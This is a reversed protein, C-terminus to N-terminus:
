RPPEITVDADFRTFTLRRVLDAPEDATAAGRLEVRHV